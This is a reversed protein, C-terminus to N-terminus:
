GKITSRSPRSRSSTVPSSYSWREARRELVLLALGLGLVSLAVGAAAGIGADPWDFGGRDRVRVITTGARASDQEGAGPRLLAGYAGGGFAVPASMANLTLAVALATTFSRRTIM